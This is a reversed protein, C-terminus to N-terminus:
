WPSLAAVGEEADFTPIIASCCSFNGRQLPRPGWLQTKSTRSKWGANSFKLRRYWPVSSSALLFAATCSKRTSSQQNSRCHSPAYSATLGVRSVIRPYSIPFFTFGSPVHASPVMRKICDPTWTGVRRRSNFFSIQAPPPSAVWRTPNSYRLNQDCLLYAM